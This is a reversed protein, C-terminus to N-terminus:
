RRRNSPVVRRRQPVSSDAPEYQDLCRDVLMPRDGSYFDNGTRAAGSVPGDQDRMILGRTRFRPACHHTSVGVGRESFGSPGGKALHLKGGRHAVAM